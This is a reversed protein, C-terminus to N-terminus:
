NLWNKYKSLFAHSFKAKLKKHYLPILNSHHKFIKWFDDEINNSSYKNLNNNILQDITKLLVIKNLSEIKFKKQFYREPYIHRGGEYKNLALTEKLSLFKNKKIDKIRRTLILSNKNYTEAHYLPTSIQLIKKNYIKPISDFGTHTSIVFESKSVIYFDLLDKNPIKLNAYDILNKNKIKIKLNNKRGMLIVFYGLKILYNIASYFSSIKFDRYNHYDWNNNPNILKKYSNDRINLCVIKDNKKINFDKFFNNGIQRETLSFKIINQKKLNQDLDRDYSVDYIHEKFINSIKSLNQFCIYIAKAIYYNFVICKKKFKNFFFHNCIINQNKFFIYIENPRKKGLIILSGQVLQGFNDVNLKIFKILYIYRFFFILLSIPMFFFVYIKKIFTFM